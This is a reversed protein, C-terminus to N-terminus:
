NSTPFRYWDLSSDFEADVESQRGSTFSISAIDEKLFSDQTHIRQRTSSPYPLMQLICIVQSLTAPTLTLSCDASDLMKWRPFEMGKRMIAKAKENDSPQTSKLSTQMVQHKPAAKKKEGKATLKVFDGHKSPSTDELAQNFNKHQFKAVGMPYKIRAYMPPSSM